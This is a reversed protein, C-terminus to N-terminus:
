YFSSCISDLRDPHSWQYRSLVVTTTPNTTTYPLDQNSTAMARSTRIRVLQWCLVFTGPSSALSRSTRGFHRVPTSHQVSSGLCVSETRFHPLINTWPVPFGDVDCNADLFYILPPIDSVIVTNKRWNQGGLTKYLRASFYGSFLGAFVFLGFGVTVFGGRFSPNLVGLSSLILLGIAVFLLQTGSGVLPALLGSHAPLRFVDAHLLKWGAVDELEDDSLPDGEGDQTLLGENSKKNEKNPSKSRRKKRKGEELVGDGRGKADSQVTRGWIVIVAVGLVGSITLSNIIALWHTMSSDVQDTFFLDWRSSWEVSPEERFYVSYTYPVKMTAGDDADEGRQPIYSSDSYKEEVEKNNPTIFLELHSNEAHVDYPCGDEDRNEYGISKPYVEFGLIVSKGQEGAKGPAKRWRIVITFHNHIYIRGLGDAPSFDQYGLKFGSSYYKRSRDVTVFSTAAPLNDVIWEAVYGDKILQRGWKVAKRDVERTCLARCGVDQKMVLEYDSTM